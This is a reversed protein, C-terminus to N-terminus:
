ENIWKKEGTCYYIDSLDFDISDFVIPETDLIFNSTARSNEVIIIATRHMSKLYKLGYRKFRDLDIENYYSISFKTYIDFITVPYFNLYSNYIGVHTAINTYDNLDATTTVFCHTKNHKKMLNQISKKARKDINMLLDEFFIFKANTCIGIIFYIANRKGNSIKKLRDYMGLDVSNLMSAVNDFSFNKYYLSFHYVLDHITECENHIMSNSIYYFEENFDLVEKGDLTYSGTDLTYLGSLVKLLLYPRTSNEGTIVITQGVDFELNIDKLITSDETKNGLVIKLM